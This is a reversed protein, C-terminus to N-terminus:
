LPFNGCLTGLPQLYEGAVEGIPGAERQARLHVRLQAGDDQLLPRGEDLHAVVEERPLAGHEEFDVFRPLRPYRKM